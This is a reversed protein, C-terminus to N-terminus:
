WREVFPKGGAWTLEIELDDRPVTIEVELGSSNADAYKKPAHWRNSREDLSQCATVKVRHKGLVAGDGREYCSLEFHGNSDISSGSPRSEPHIFMISGYALPQGDILVTGSVPVRQPRGDGCGAAAALLLGLPLISTAPQLSAKKM